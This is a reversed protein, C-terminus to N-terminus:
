FILNYEKGTCVDYMCLATHLAWSKDNNKPTLRLDMYNFFRMCVIERIKIKAEWYLQSFNHLSFTGKSQYSEKEMMHKNKVDTLLKKVKELVQRHHDILNKHNVKTMVDNTEKPISASPIAVPSKRLSHQAEDERRKATEIQNNKVMSKIQRIFHIIKAYERPKNFFSDDSLIAQVQSSGNASKPVDSTFWSKDPEWPDALIEDYDSYFSFFIHTHRERFINM